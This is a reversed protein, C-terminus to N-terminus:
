PLKVGSTLSELAQAPDENVNSLAQEKVFDKIKAMATELISKAEANGADQSLVSKASDIAGQYDGGELSSKAQAVLGSIKSQLEAASKEAAQAALQKAKQAEAEAKRAVELARQKAQKAAARKAEEALTKQKAQQAELLQTQELQAAEQNQKNVYFAGGGILLLVLVIM